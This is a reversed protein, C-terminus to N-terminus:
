SKSATQYSHCREREQKRTQYLTEFREAETFIRKWASAPIDPRMDRNYAYSKYLLECVKSEM